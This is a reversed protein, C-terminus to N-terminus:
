GNSDYRWMGLDIECDIVDTYINCHKIGNVNYYIYLDDDHKEVSLCVVTQFRDPQRQQRFTVIKKVQTM